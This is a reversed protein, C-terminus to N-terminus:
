HNPMAADAAVGQEVAPKSAPSPASLHSGSLLAIVFLVGGFLPLWTKFERLLQGLWEIRSTYPWPKSVDHLSAKFENNWRDPDDVAYKAQKLNLEGMLKAGLLSLAVSIVVLSLSAKAWFNSMVQQVSGFVAWNAAIVAFSMQLSSETLRETWYHFDSRLEKTGDDACTYLKSLPMEPVILNQSSTVESNM